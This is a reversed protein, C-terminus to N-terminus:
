RLPQTSPATPEQPIDMPVGQVQAAGPPMNAYSSFIIRKGDPSWAPEINWREPPQGPLLEPQQDELDADLLYIQPPTNPRTLSVAIQKGDPSWSTRGNVAGSYLLRLRGTRKEEETAFAQKTEMTSAAILGVVDLSRALRGAFCVESGDPSFSFGPLPIWKDEAKLLDRQTGTRLDLLSINDVWRLVALTRGDRSWAPSGANAEMIELGQGEPDTVLIGQDFRDFALLRQDYSWAPSSGKAVERCSEPDDIWQTFILSEDPDAGFPWGSYVISQGDPAFSSNLLHWGDRRAVQRFNEGDVDIVCIAIAEEVRMSPWPVQASAERFCFAWPFVLLLVVLWEIQRRPVSVMARM